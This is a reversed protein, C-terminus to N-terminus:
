GFEISRGSPLESMEKLLKRAKRWGVLRDPAALVFTRDLRLAKAAKGTLDFVLRRDQVRIRNAGDWAAVMQDDGELYLKDEDEACVIHLVDLRPAGSNYWLTVWCYNPERGSRVRRITQTRM